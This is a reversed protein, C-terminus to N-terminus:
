CDSPRGCPSGHDPGQTQRAKDSPRPKGGDYTESVEIEGDLRDDDQTILQAHIM